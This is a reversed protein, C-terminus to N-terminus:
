CNVNIQNNNAAHNYLQSHATLNLQTLLCVNASFGTFDLFYFFFYFFSMMM